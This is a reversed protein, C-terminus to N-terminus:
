QLRWTETMVMYLRKSHVCTTSISSISFTQHFKFDQLERPFKQEMSCYEYIDVIAAV